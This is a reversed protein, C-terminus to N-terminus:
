ASERVAHDILTLEADSLETFDEESRTLVVAGCLQGVCRFGLRKLVAKAFPNPARNNAIGEEDCYCDFQSSGDDGILQVLECDILEALRKSNHPGSTAANYGLVYTFM